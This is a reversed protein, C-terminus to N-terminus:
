GLRDGVPRLNGFTKGFGRSLAFTMSKLLRKHPM